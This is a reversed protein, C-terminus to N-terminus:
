AAQVSRTARPIIKGSISTVYRGESLNKDKLRLIFNKVFYFMSKPYLKQPNKIFVDIIEKKKYTSFLWQLEEFTGYLLVQHIIYVKDKQAELLNVNTSWLIPQLKAPIAAIKM